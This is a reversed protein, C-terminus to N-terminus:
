ELVRLFADPAIAPRKVPRDQDVVDDVVVRPRKGFVQGM